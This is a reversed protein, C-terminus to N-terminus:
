EEYEPFPDLEGCPPVIKIRYSQSTLTVLCFSMYDPIILEVSFTNVRRDCDILKISGSLVLEYQVVNNADSAFQHWSFDYTNNSTRVAIGRFATLNVVDPFSEPFLVEQPVFEESEVAFTKGAPDLPIFTTVNKDGDLGVSIWNGGINCEKGLDSAANGQGIQFAFLLGISIVVTVIKRM